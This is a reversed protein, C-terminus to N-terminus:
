KLLSLLEQYPNLSQLKSTAFLSKIREIFRQGRYSWTHYSNKRYKVYHKIQREAHNNTPELEDDQAFRWMMNFSKLINSAVRKAQLCEHMNSIELLYFLMNNEIKHMLSLYRSKEIQNSTSLKHLDFVDDITLLLTHGIISLDKHNSHYFRKFDRRLHALCIQRKSEDFINYIAYRDSIVKGAYDPMFSELSKMGRSAAIKFVSVTKNAAVFCWHRAGKNSAGTEDFHLYSSGQAVNLIHTYKDELKSAIRGETASILGLSLDLNFIQSLMQQLERKSNNFYGGLNGIIAEANSGLLKYEKLKGKYKKKCSICTKERLHYQTVFPKITPIDIKQHTTYEEHLELTGGCRCVEEDPLVEIVESAERREYGSYKHGVQGGPKKGSKPRSHKEIRYIDKSSPLSSNSSNINLKYELEKIKMSLEYIEKVLKTNEERLALNNQNLGTVIEELTRGNDALFM